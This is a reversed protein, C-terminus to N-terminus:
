DQGRIIVKIHAILNKEDLADLIVTRMNKLRMPDDSYLLSMTDIERFFDHSTLFHRIPMVLHAYESLEQNNSEIKNSLAQLLGTIKALDRKIIELDGPKDKLNSLVTHSDDIQQLVGKLYADYTVM